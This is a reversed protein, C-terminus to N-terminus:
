TAQQQISEQYGGPMRRLWWCAAMRRTFALGTPGNLGGAVPQFNPLIKFVQGLAYDAVLPRAM